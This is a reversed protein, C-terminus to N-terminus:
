YSSWTLTSHESHHPPYLKSTFGYSITRVEDEALTVIQVPPLRSERLRPTWIALNYEGAPLASLDVRGDANTISFHPTDVVVVYALMDDHINCGLVVIGNQDFTLPAHAVGAYLPLEFAKPDSFSYVHHRVTDNNPFEIQTGRQVPLIHPVFKRDVQNIIAANEVPAATNQRNTPTAHVVVNAVPESDRDLVQVHLEAGFVTEGHLSLLLALMPTLVAANFRSARGAVTALRCIKYVCM